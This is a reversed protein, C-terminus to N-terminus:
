QPDDAVRRWRMQQITTGCILTRGYYAALQTCTICRTRWGFPAAVGLLPVQRLDQLDFCSSLAGQQRDGRHGCQRQRLPEQGGFADRGCRRRPGDHDGLRRGFATLVRLMGAGLPRRLLRNVLPRRLGALALTLTRALWADALLDDPLRHWAGALRVLRAHTLLDDPLRPRAGALRVRAHALLDDPLRTWAGALRVLRAHTLLDDPCGTGPLPWVFWGPTPWFTMPCGPGPVPWVFWGPTPWFTM